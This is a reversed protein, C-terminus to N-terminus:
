GLDFQVLGPYGQAAYRLADILGVYTAWPTQADAGPQGLTWRKRGGDATRLALVWSAYNPPSLQIAALSGFPFQEGDVVLVGPGVDIREPAKRKGGMWDNRPAWVSQLGPQAGPVVGSQVGPVLGPGAVPAPMGVGGAVAGPPPPVVPQAGSVQQGPQGSPGPQYPPPPVIPRAPPAVDLPVLTAYMENFRTQSLGPIPVEVEGGGAPYAVLARVAGSRIGNTRQQTVKSGFRTTARDWQHRLRGGKFVEVAPDTVVVRVKGWVFAWGLMPVIVVLSLLASILRRQNLGGWSRPLEMPVANLAIALVVGGILLTVLLRPLLPSIYEKRM